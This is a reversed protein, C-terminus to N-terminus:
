WDDPILTGGVAPTARVPNSRELQKLEMEVPLVTAEELGLEALILPRRAPDALLKRLQSPETVDFAFLKLKQAPTLSELKVTRPRSRNCVDYRITQPSRIRHSGREPTAM